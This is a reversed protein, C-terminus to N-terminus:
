YRREWKGTLQDRQRGLRSRGHAGYVAALPLEYVEAMELERTERAKQREKLAEQRGRKQHAKIASRADKTHRRQEARLKQRESMFSGEPRPTVKIPQYGRDGRARGKARQKDGVHPRHHKDLRYSRPQITPAKSMALPSISNLAALAYEALKRM